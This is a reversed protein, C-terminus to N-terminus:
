VLLGVKSSSVDQFDQAVTSVVPSPTGTRVLPIEEVLEVDIRTETGTYQRLEDLIERLATDTFQRNKVIKVTFEGTTEQHVQFLRIAYEHEKFFHAFFTGPLWTGVIWPTADLGRAPASAPRRGAEHPEGRQETEDDEPAFRPRRLIEVVACEM